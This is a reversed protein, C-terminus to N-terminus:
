TRQGAIAGRNGQSGRVTTPSRSRFGFVVAAGDISPICINMLPETRATVTSATAPLKRAIVVSGAVAATAGEVM